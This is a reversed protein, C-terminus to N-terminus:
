TERKLLATMSSLPQDSNMEGLIQRLQTAAPWKATKAVCDDFKAFLQQRTLPVQRSGMPMKISTSLTQGSLTTVHVETPFESELKEVYEKRIKPFLARIDTRAIAEPEFDALGVSGNLLGVSLNYELCFKAEAPTVPDEYMLNRLHSAPARVLVHDVTEATLSHKERLELLGDLARHVSGCNPFRKVKLGYALIHLPDAIRGPKFDVSQGHEATGVMDAARDEVDQGVLLTRLSNPGDLTERGATLGARAMLASQVGGSAAFGAHLPKTDTGFQSMFGGARSTAMSIAHASQEANLKLLRAAGAAAGIAGMTATAHWGRNRHFPNVAQGVHGMVQLGVIYADLYAGITCNEQEGVALLAPILVASAHAKAPDFNDDFDLVHAAAGNILAAWPASLAGAQGVLTAPGQGWQSVLATLKAIAPDASGVIMCAITDITANSATLLATDPWNAPRESVWQAIEELPHYTDTPRTMTVENNDYRLIKLSIKQQKKKATDIM